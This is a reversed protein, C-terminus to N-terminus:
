RDAGVRKSIMIRDYEDLEAVAFMMLRGLYVPKPFNPDNKVKRYLWMDSVGGYRARVQNANAWVADAPLPRPSHPGLKYGGGAGSPPPTKTPTPTKRPSSKM